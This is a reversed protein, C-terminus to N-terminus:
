RGPASIGPGTILTRSGFHQVTQDAAGNAQRDCQYDAYRHDRCIFISFGYKRTRKSFCLVVSLVVIPITFNEDGFATFFKAVGTLFGCQMSGFFRFVWLDFAYFAKDINDGITLLIPSFM